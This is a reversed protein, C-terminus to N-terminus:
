LKAPVFMGTRTVLTECSCVNRNKYSFNRLFLCEQEQLYLKAPVFMGTRTVLTECSCANKSEYSFKRLFFVNKSTKM